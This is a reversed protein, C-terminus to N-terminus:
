HITYQLGVTFIGDMLMQPGDVYQYMPLDYNAALRSDVTHVMDNLKYGFWSVTKLENSRRYDEQNDKLSITAAHFATLLMVVILTISLIRQM